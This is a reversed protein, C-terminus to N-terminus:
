RRWGWSQIEDVACRERSVARGVVEGENGDRSTRIGEGRARQLRGLPGQCMRQVVVMGRVDAAGTDSRGFETGGGGAWLWGLETKAFRRLETGGGGGM